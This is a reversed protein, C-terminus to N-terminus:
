LATMPLAASVPSWSDALPRILAPDHGGIPLAHRRTADTEIASLTTYLEVPAAASAASENMIPLARLPPLPVLGPTRQVAGLGPTSGPHRNKTPVPIAASHNFMATTAGFGCPQGHVM